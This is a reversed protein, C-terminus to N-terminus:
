YPRTPESIHILSLHAIYAVANVFAMTEYYDAFRFGRAIANDTYTWAPLAQLLQALEQQNLRPAGPRARMAALALCRTDASVPLEDTM